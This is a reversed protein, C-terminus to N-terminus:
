YIELGMDSAIRLLSGSRISWHEEDLQNRVTTTLLGFGRINENILQQRFHLFSVFEFRINEQQCQIATLKGLFAPFQDPMRKYEQNRIAFICPMCLLEQILPATMPKFYEQHESPTNKELAVRRGISFVGRNYKENELVFVHYRTQDLMAWEMAHSVPLQNGLMQTLVAQLDGPPLNVKLDGHVAGIAVGNDSASINIQKGPQPLSKNQKILEDAM